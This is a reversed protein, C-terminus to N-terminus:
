DFQSAMEDKYGFAYTLLFGAA